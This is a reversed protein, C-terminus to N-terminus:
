WLLYFLWFMITLLLHRLEIRLKKLAKNMHNEVTKSSIELIDAIEQYKFGEFRSLYFVNRQAPPLKNLARKIHDEFDFWDDPYFTPRSEPNNLATERHVIKKRLHDIALNNAARYLYSKISKKEELNQRNNWVKMFLDQVLDKAVESDHTKRWLFRYLMESYRFYLEKFAKAKAKRIAKVLQADSQSSIDRM